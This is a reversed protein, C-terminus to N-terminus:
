GYNMGRKGSSLKESCDTLFKIFLYQETILSELSENHKEKKGILDM